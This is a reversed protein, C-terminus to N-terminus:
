GISMKNVSPYKTLWSVTRKDYYTLLDSYFLFAPDGDPPGAKHNEAHLTLAKEAALRRRRGM